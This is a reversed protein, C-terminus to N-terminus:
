RWKRVHRLAAGRCHQPARHTRNPLKHRRRGRYASKSSGAPMPGERHPCIREFNQFDDDIGDFSNAEIKTFTVM